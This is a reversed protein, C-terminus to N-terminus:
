CPEDVQGYWEQHHWIIFLENRLFFMLKKQYPCDIHKANINAHKIAVLKLPVIKLKLRITDSTILNLIRIRPEKQKMIDSARPLSLITVVMRKTTKM